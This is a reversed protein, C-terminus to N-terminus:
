RGTEQDDDGWPNEVRAGCRLFDRTNRTIVTLDHVIATAALLSDIVPLSYADRQNRGCIEGWARAIQEDIPLIRGAFRPLVERELWNRYRDQRVGPSLNAIGRCIEGITLVSLYAADAHGTMWEIVRRNPRSHTPESLVNTDLLDSM